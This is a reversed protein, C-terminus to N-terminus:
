WYIVLQMFGIAIVIGQGEHLIDEDEEDEIYIAGTHAIGFILGNIFAIDFGM